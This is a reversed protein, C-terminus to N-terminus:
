RVRLAAACASPGAIPSPRRQETAGAETGTGRRRILREQGRDKASISQPLNEYDQVRTHRDRGDTGEPQLYLRLRGEATDDHFPEQRLRQGSRGPKARYRAGLRRKPQSIQAVRPGYLIVRIWVVARGGPIWGLGRGISLVRGPRGHIRLVGDGYQGAVIFGAKVISPFVLIGKSKQALALAGPTDQYLGTLAQSANQNIASASAALAQGCNLVNFCVAMLLWVGAHILLRHIRPRQACDMPKM